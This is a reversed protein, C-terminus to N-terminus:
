SAGSRAGERVRAAGEIHEHALGAPRERPPPHKEHAGLQREVSGHGDERLGDLRHRLLHPRVRLPRGADAIRRSIDAGPCRDEICARAGPDHGRDVDGQPFRLARRGERWDHGSFAFLSPLSDGAQSPTTARLLNSSSIEAKLPRRGLGSSSRAM